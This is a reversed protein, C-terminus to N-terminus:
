TMPVPPKPDRLIIQQNTTQMLLAQAPIGRRPDQQSPYRAVPAGIGASTTSITGHDCDGHPDASETTRVSGAAGPGTADASGAGAPKVSVAFSPQSRNGAADVAVVTYTYSHDPELASDVFTTDQVTGVPTPGGDRHVEYDAVAVDDSSASWSLSVGAATSSVVMLGTVAAPPTTDESSSAVTTSDFVAGDEASLADIQLASPTVTVKVFEYNDDERYATYAPATTSFTNFGNGGAGSVVYVIGGKTVPVGSILPLTREYNHSNGSLVLSV